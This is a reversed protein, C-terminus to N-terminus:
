NIKGNQRRQDLQEQRYNCILELTDDLPLQFISTLIESAGFADLNSKDMAQSLAELTALKKNLEKM